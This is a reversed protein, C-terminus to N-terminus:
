VVRSDGKAGGNRDNRAQADQLMAKLESEPLDTQRALEGILEAVTGKAAPRKGPAPPDVIREEVVDEATGPPWSFLGDIAGYTLARVNRGHEVNAYTVPSISLMGAAVDATIGWALRGRRVARGLRKQGEKTM